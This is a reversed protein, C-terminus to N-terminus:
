NEINKGFGHWLTQQIQAIMKLENGYNYILAKSIKEPHYNDKQQRM